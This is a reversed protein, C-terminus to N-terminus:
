GLSKRLIAAELIESSPSAGMNTKYYISSTLNRHIFHHDKFPGLKAGLIREVEKVDEMIERFPAHKKALKELNEKNLYKGAHVLDRELNLYLKRILPLLGAKEAARLGRGTGIFEPPVGISYFAGTFTIARPLSVKGMGRSYGFLGIHLMRERRQPILGALKNIMPALPEVTAQYFKEFIANIKKISKTEADTIHIPKLKPLTKNIFKLARAVQAQRYDYKFASQITLTRIGSYEPIVERINEPNVGGRFPLSGTG